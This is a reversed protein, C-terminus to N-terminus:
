GKKGFIVRNFPYCPLSTTFRLSKVELTDSKFFFRQLNEGNSLKIRLKVVDGDERSPEVM